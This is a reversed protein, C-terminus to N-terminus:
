RANSIQKKQYLVGGFHKAGDATKFLVILQHEGEHGLEYGAMYWDGMKMMMKSESKDNPYTVKSNIMLDSLAKGNKEIKVLFNHTGGHQMDQEVKMVYFSVTFGDIDKKMLFAGKKMANAEAPPHEAHGKMQKTGKDGHLPGHFHVGHRKRVDDNALTIQASALLLVGSIMFIMKKMM